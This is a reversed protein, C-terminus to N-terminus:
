VQPMRCTMTVGRLIISSLATLRRLGHLNVIEGKENKLYRGEVRLIPLKAEAPTEPEPDPEVTKEPEPKEPQVPITDDSCAALFMGLALTLLYIIKKM